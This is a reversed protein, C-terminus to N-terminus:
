SHLYRSQDCGYMLYNNHVWGGGTLHLFKVVIYHKCFGCRSLRSSWQHHDSTSVTWKGFLMNGAWWLNYKERATESAFRFRNHLCNGFSPFCNVLVQGKWISVFGNTPIPICYGNLLRYILEKFSYQTMQCLIFRRTFHCKVILKELTWKRRQTPTPFYM